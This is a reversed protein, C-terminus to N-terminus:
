ARFCDDHNQVFNLDSLLYMLDGEEFEERCVILVYLLPIFVGFIVCLSLFNANYVYHPTVKKLQLPLSVSSLANRTDLNFFTLNTM